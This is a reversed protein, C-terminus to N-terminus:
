VCREAIHNRANGKHTSDLLNRESGSSVPILLIDQNFLITLSYLNILCILVFYRIERGMLRM